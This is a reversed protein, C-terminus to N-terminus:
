TVSFVWHFWRSNFEQGEPKYRLAKVVVGGRVGQVIQVYRINMVPGTCEKGCAYVEACM